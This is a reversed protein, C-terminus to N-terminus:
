LVGFAPTKDAGISTKRFEIVMASSYRERVALFASEDADKRKSQWQGNHPHMKTRSLNTRIKIRDHKLNEQLQGKPRVAGKIELTGYDWGRLNPPLQLAVSRWVMSIRVRGYGVGGALPYTDMVQSRDQFLMSLPLFVLGLLADEEKERSDRCSIIIETTTWDKVFRETGANYFPKATKPKTRTKYIKRHNMIITCYSDPLETDFGDEESAEQDDKGQKQRKQVELGTINHVQISLIGSPHDQSPPASILM